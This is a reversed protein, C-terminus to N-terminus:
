VGRVVELCHHFNMADCHARRTGNDWTPWCNEKFWGEIQKWDVVASTAEYFLVPRENLLAGFVSIVVPRRAIRGVQFWWGRNQDIWPVRAASTRPILDASDQAYHEWLSQKEYSSAEVVFVACKLLGELEWRPVTRDVEREDSMM